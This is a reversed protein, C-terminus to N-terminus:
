PRDETKSEWPTHEQLQGEIFLAIACSPPAHKQVQHIIAERNHDAAAIIVLDPLIHALRDYSVIPVGEIDKGQLVVDRDLFAKIIAERLDPHAMLRRTVPSAPALVVSKGALSFKTWEHGNKKLRPPSLNLHPYRQSRRQSESAECEQFNLFSLPFIQQYRKESSLRDIEQRVGQLLIKGHVSVPALHKEPFHVPKIGYKRLMLYTRAYAHIHKSYDYGRFDESDGPLGALPVFDFTLWVEQPRVALMAYTFGAIDDENSNYESFIYKVAVQGAGKQAARSYRAINEIVTHFSDSKKIRQYTRPTGSDLSICAWRISGSSLGDSVSQRYITGNTYLFVRIRRSKFYDIYEDFNSLLTPEGGGFDVASDWQVDNPEFLRLIKLPDYKPESFSNTHTYGCFSCRLNCRTDAALDIHGLRNFNVEDRKKMVVMQCHKCPIDTREDNLLDFLWRRKQAIMEGTFELNVVEEASWYLPSHFPGLECARIGDIAFRFGSELKPCSKVWTPKTAKPSPPSFVEITMKSEM